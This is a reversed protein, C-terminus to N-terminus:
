TQKKCIQTVGTPFKLDLGFELFPNQYDKSIGSRKQNVGSIEM